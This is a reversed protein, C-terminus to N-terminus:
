ENGTNETANGCPMIEALFEANLVVEFGAELLIENGARFIVNADVKGASKVEEIAHYTDAIVPTDDIQMVIQACNNHDVVETITFTTSMQTVSGSDDTAEVVLTHSGYSSPMWDYSYNDGNNTSYTYRQNDITFTVNAITGDPDIADASLTILDAINSFDQGDSPMVGSIIPSASGIVEITGMFTTVGLEDDAATIVFSYTGAASPTWYVNHHGGHHAHVPTLENGDISMIVNTILGDSDTINATLSVPALNIVTDIFDSQIVPLVNPPPMCVSHFSWADSLGPEDGQTWYNALYVMGNHEVHIAEANPAYTSAADWAEIVTCDTTPYNQSSCAGEEAWTGNTGPEVGSSWATSTYLINNHSIFSGTNYSETPEWATIPCEIEILKLNVLPTRQTEGTSATMTGVLPYYGFAAASWTVRYHDGSVLTAPYDTGDIDAVVGAVTSGEPPIAVFNIEFDAAPLASYVRFVQGPLFDCFGGSETVLFSQEVDDAAAYCANGAQSARVVVIGSIGTLSIMNGSVTAPGSVISLSVPLGSGSSVNVAFDPNDTEQDEITPFTIDQPINQTECETFDVDSTAYFAEPSDSRQWISYVVHKGTREPWVVPINVTAEPPSPATEVLLDLSAWTLPQDTTWDSKTIYVRYYLTAHPASNTWTVIDPGPTVFTAAWESSAQDLGGYKDPRGGSALNGDMIYLEHEGNAELQSVENWDYFAQPGHSAYAAMCTASSPTEPGEQYCNWVRSAPYTVTGHSFAPQSIILFAATCVLNLIKCKEINSIISWLNRRM